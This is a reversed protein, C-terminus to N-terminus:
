WLLILKHVQLDQDLPVVLLFALLLQVVQFAMIIMSCLNILLPEAITSFVQQLLNIPFFTLITPVLIQVFQWISIAELIFAHWQDQHEEELILSVLPLFAWLYDQKSCPLQLGEQHPIFSPFPLCALFSSALTRGQPSRIVQDDEILNNMIITITFINDIYWVIAPVAVLEEKKDKREQSMMEKIEWDSTHIPQHQTPVQDLLWQHIM